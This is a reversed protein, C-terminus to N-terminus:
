GLWRGVQEIVAPHTLLDRHSLGYGIWTDDFPLARAPDAHRGLASDLPVLGDGVTARNELIAGGRPAAGLMAAAAYSRAGAPLPVIVREDARHAFRDRGHWDEDVLSGYRLDTIGASRGKGL